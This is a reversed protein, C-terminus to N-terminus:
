FFVEYYISTFHKDSFVSKLKRFNNERKLINIKFTMNVRPTVATTAIEM